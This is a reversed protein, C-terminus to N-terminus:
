GDLIHERYSAARGTVVILNLIKSVRPFRMDPGQNLRIIVHTKVARPTDPLYISDVPNRSHHEITETSIM